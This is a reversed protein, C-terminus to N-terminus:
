RAPSPPPDAQKQNNKIAEVAHAISYGVLIGTNVLVQTDLHQGNVLVKASDEKYGQVVALIEYTRKSFNWYLIPGGSFGPNNFGDIYIVVADPNTGDIASMTGRKIFPLAGGKNFPAVGGPAFHSGIGFPYGLFWVQQGLTVGGTEGVMSVSYPTPVKENTEFVAIDVDNSAPYLTRVTHYDKWQNEQLIQIVAGQAPLGAIVHRATVLYMKGAYDVTFATGAETGAKIFITRQLIETPVADQAVLASSVCLLVGLLILTPKRM